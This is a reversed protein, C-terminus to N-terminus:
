RLRAAVIILALLLALSAAGLRLDTTALQMARGVLCYLIFPTFLALALLAHKFSSLAKRLSGEHIALLALCLSPILLFLLFLAAEMILAAAEKGLPPRAELKLGRAV